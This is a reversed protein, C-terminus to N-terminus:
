EGGQERYAEELYDLFKGSIDHEVRIKDMGLLKAREEEIKIIFGWAITNGRQAAPWLEEIM